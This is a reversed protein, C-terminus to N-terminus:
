GASTPPAASLADAPRETAQSWLAQWHGGDCRYADTHWCHVVKGSPFVLEAAYRLLALDSGRRVRLEGHLHWAAYFPAAAILGLYRQRTFVRGAPTILEYDPAHLREVTAMDRAVIAQTRRRELDRFFGDDM